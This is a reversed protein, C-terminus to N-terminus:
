CDVVTLRKIIVEFDCPIGKGNINRNGKSRPNWVYISMDVLNERVTPCMEGYQGFKTPKESM